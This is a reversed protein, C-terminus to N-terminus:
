LSKTAEPTKRLNVEMSCHQAMVTENGLFPVYKIHIINKPTIHSGKQMGGELFIEIIRKLQTRRNSDHIKKYPPLGQGAKSFPCLWHCGASAARNQMLAIDFLTEVTSASTIGLTICNQFEKKETKKKQKECQIINLAEIKSTHSQQQKKRINPFWKIGWIDVIQNHEDKIKYRLQMAQGITRSKLMEQGNHDTCKNNISHIQFCFLFVANPM